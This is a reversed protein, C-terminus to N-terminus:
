RRLVELAAAANDERVTVIGYLRTDIVQKGLVYALDLQHPQAEGTAPSPDGLPRIPEYYTRAAPVAVLDMEPYRLATLKGGFVCGTDICLTGNVM